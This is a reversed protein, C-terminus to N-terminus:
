TSKKESNSYVGMIEKSLVEVHKTWLNDIFDEFKKVDNEWDFSIFLTKALTYLLEIENQNEVNKIVPYIARLHKMKMEEEIEIKHNDLEFIKGMIKKYIIFM